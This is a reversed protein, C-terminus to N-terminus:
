RSLTLVPQAGALGGAPELGEVRLVSREGLKGLTTRGSKAAGGAPGPDLLAGGRRFRLEWRLEGLPAIAGAPDGSELTFAIWPKEGILDGEVRVVEVRGGLLLTGRRLGRSSPERAAAAPGDAGAPALLVVDLPAAPYGEPADISVTREEGAKWGAVELPSFAPAFPAASGTKSPFLFAAEGSFLDTPPGENRLVCRARPGRDGSEMRLALVTLSTGDGASLSGGAAAGAGPLLRLPAAVRAAGTGAAAFTGTAPDLTAAAGPGLEGESVKKGDAFTDFLLRGGRWSSLGNAVLVRDEGLALVAGESAKPVYIDLFRDKALPFLVRVKGEQWENDADTAFRVGDKELGVTAGQDRGLQVERRVTEGPNVLLRLLGSDKAARAYGRGGPFSEAHFVAREKRDAPFAWFAPTALRTFFGVDADAAGSKLFFSEAKAGDAAVETGLARLIAGPRLRITDKGDASAVVAPGAVERGVELPEQKGDPWTVTAAAAPAAALLLASALVGFGRLGTM